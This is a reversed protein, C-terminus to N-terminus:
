HPAFTLCHAKKKPASHKKNEANEEVWGRERKVGAVGRSFGYPVAAALQVRAIESMSGADVVVMFSAGDGGVCLSLLVGDDERTGGGPPAVFLPEGVVCGPEQWAAYPAASANDCDIKILANGAPSPPSAGIGFVFRQKRVRACPAVAPFEFFFPERQPSSADDFVPTVTVGAGGPTLPVRVRTLRTRTVPASEGGGGGRQNALSLVRVMAPDTAPVDFVFQNGETWANVVHFFFLPDPTDFHFPPPPDGGGGGVAPLPVM